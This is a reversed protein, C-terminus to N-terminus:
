ASSARRGRRHLPGLGPAGGGGGRGARHRPRHGRQSLGRGAARVAGLVADLGRGDARGRGAAHERAKVALAVESGTALITARRAGGEAEALVYAGRSSLNEGPATRACRSRAAPARLDALLARHPPEARDGLVRGGRGRRGPAAGAHEPDGAVLGPVRGAPPDARQPRHRHLRPQVRVAGAPGDDGRPAATPRMYDSFVLYTVGVPVVGGHAAMGNLMSGM